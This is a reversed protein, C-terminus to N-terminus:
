KQRSGSMMDVRNSRWQRLDADDETRLMLPQKFNGDDNEHGTASPLKSMKTSPVWSIERFLVPLLRGAICQLLNPVVRLNKKPM